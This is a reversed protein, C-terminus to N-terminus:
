DLAAATNAPMAPRQAMAAPVTEATRDHDRRRDVITSRGIVGARAAPASLMTNAAHATTAHHDAVLARQCFGSGIRSLGSRPPREKHTPSIFRTLRLSKNPAKQGTGPAGPKRYLTALLFLRKRRLVDMATAVAWASELGSGLCLM